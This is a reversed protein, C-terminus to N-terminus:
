NETWSTKALALVKQDSEKYVTHLWNGDGLDEVASLLKDGWTSESRFNLDISKLNQESLVKFPLGEIAIQFYYTNSLHQNTDIDHWRLPFSEAEESSKVPPIKGSAIEMANQGRPLGTLSQLWDPIRIMRRTELDFVLWTSTAKAICVDNEDYVRYDRYVFSREGGSPWSEVYYYERHRPLREIELKLRTLVWSIGDEQLRAVSAGLSEASNWAAEQMNNILAPVSMRSKFDIEHAKVQNKERTVKM